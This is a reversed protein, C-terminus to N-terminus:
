TPWTLVNVECIMTFVQVNMCFKRRAGPHTLSANSFTHYISSAIIQHKSLFIIMNELCMLCDQPPRCPINSYPVFYHLFTCAQLGWIGNMDNKWCAKSCNKWLFLKIILANIKFKLPVSWYLKIEYNISVIWIGPLLIFANRHLWPTSSNIFFLFCEHFIDEFAPSFM